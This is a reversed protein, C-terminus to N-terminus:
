DGEFFKISLLGDYEMPMIKSVAVVAKPNLVNGDDLIIEISEPIFAPLVGEGSATSLPIIRLHEGIKEINGSFFEEEGESLIGKVSNLSCVLVPYGTLSDILHNGTDVIAFINTKKGKRKIVVRKLCNDQPANVFFKFILFLALYIGGALVLLVPASIDFYVIGDSFFMGLPTLFYYIAFMLGAFISSVIYFCACRKLFSKLKVRGFAIFIMIGSVLIKLIGSLFVPISDVLIILSYLAGVLASIIVRKGKAKERTFLFVANLLFFNIVLNLVILIDVYIVM